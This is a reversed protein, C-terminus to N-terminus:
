SGAWGLEFGIRLDHCFHQAGGIGTKLQYRRQEPELHLRVRTGTPRAIRCSNVM